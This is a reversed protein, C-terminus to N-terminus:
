TGVGLGLEAGGAAELAEAGLAEAGLAEAGLAGPM